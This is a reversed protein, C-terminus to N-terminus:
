THKQENEIFQKVQKYKNPLFVKNWISIWTIKM